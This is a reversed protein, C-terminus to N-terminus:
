KCMIGVHSEESRLMHFAGYFAHQHIALSAEIWFLVDIVFHDGRYLTIPPQGFRGAPDLQVPLQDTGIAWAAIEAMTVHDCPRAEDLALAARAPWSGLDERSDSWQADLRRGLDAFLKM